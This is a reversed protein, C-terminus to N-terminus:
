GDALIDEANVAIWRLLPHLLAVLEDGRPTLSYEVHPPIVPRAERRVLGDKEFTKLTQALMKESIGQVCRRLEGWRMTRDTLAVLLLVGWKSTVHDIVTRSPCASPFYGGPFLEELTSVQSSVSM